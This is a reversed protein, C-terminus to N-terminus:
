RFTDGTLANLYIRNNKTMGGCYTFYIPKPKHISSRWWGGMEIFDSMSCSGSKLLNESASVFVSQYKAFDDSSKIVDGVKSTVKVKEVAPQTTSLYKAYVWRAVKGEVGESSGDYFKSIRAWNGKIEFIEIKQRKYLTNTVAGNKNPALRVNLKDSIVFYFGPKINIKDHRTSVRTKSGNGNKVKKSKVKIPEPVVQTIILENVGADIYEELSKHDPNHHQLKGTVNDMRDELREIQAELKKIAKKTRNELKSNLYYSDKGSFRKYIYAKGNITLDHVTGLKAECLVNDWRIINALLFNSEYTASSKSLTIGSYKKSSNICARIDGSKSAFVHTTNLSFFLVAIVIVYKILKNVM